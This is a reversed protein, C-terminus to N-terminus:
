GEWISVGNLRQLGSERLRAKRERDKRRRREVGEVVEKKQMERAAFNVSSRKTGGRRIFDGKEGGGAARETIAHSIGHQDTTSTLNSTTARRLLSPVFSNNSATTSPNHFALHSSTTTSASSIRKLTLRDIIPNAGTRRANQHSDKPPPMIATDEDEEDASSSPEATHLSGPEEMLFSVSERIEALTAPRKPAHTRRMAAPPRMNGKDPISEQLPRKPISAASEAPPAQQSQSEGEQMGTAVRFSDEAPQNLFDVEEDDDRDEIAKLFAMKKPDEAIKGVNENELLAKRMKAFERQKRRRRAEADDESDSLDFDAGAGRKRRLGGNNIDKFLKEVAKEDDARQKNAYLAALKREDVDVEGEDMMENVYADEEGGSEDDSAGGLGAYEDESEQAQEEVMEKAESKKKIFEAKKAAKKRAKEMVAFANASEDDGTNAAQPRPIQEDHVSAEEVITRRHLRGRRRASPPADASAASPLIVTEVTSPPQSVFREPVPSSMSFGADQTPDPIESFQTGAPQSQTVRGAHYCIQSEPYHDIEKSPATYNDISTDREQAQGQSDEIMLLSDEVHLVPLNPEPPPGPFAMSDEGEDEDDDMQTQTDAMTAAFAQTMGMLMANSRAQFVKPVEVFPSTTAMDDTKDWQSGNGHDVEEDEDIIMKTRRPRKAQMEDLDSEEEEEEEEEDDGDRDEEDQSHESAEDEILVNSAKEGEADGEADMDPHEGSGDEDEDNEMEADEEESGSLEIEVEDVDGDEYDEDDSSEDHDPTEGNALKEKKAAMKEKEKIEMGERRAKELLDEVEFQEKEREEATQVIIGRARLDEIKAKREEVAQQRARKRLSIQMDALSVSHKGERGKGEPPSNLHALARLTQLPRVDQTKGEPLRDFVALRSTKSKTVPMVELESDSDERSKRGRQSLKPPHIRIPRQKFDFKESKRGRFPPSHLERVNVENGKGKNLRPLPQGLFTTLEPLKEEEQEAIISPTIQGSLLSGKGFVPRGEQLDSDEPRLPSTPPTKKQRPDEYDSAPASDVSTSSGPLKVNEVCSASACGFNFRALLSEKSIRKKTKAQHALQMNRSIRQTERNMEELAKKSAKRTPRNYQTLRKDVDDDGSSPPSPTGRGNSFVDLSDHRRRKRKADEAAQEAERQARKKAVLELFRNNRQPDDPLSCDSDAGKGTSDHCESANSVSYPPLFLSPSARRNTTPTPCTQVGPCSDRNSSSRRETSQREPSDNHSHSCEQGTGLTSKSRKQILQKKVRAYANEKDGGDDSSENSARREVNQGKLRAALKGRPAIPQDDEGSDEGSAGSLQREDVRDTELLNGDISSLPERRPKLPIPDDRLDSESDEDVAALMAKVKSRPTLQPSTSCNDMSSPTTANSLAISRAPSAALSM